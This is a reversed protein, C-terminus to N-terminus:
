RSGSGLYALVDTGTVVGVPHGRDLVILAPATELSAVAETVPEGVGITPLPPSLAEAV